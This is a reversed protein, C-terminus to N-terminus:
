RRWMWPLVWGPAYSVTRLKIWVFFVVFRIKYFGEFHIEEGSDGYKCGFRGIKMILLVAAM